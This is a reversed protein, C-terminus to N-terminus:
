HTLTKRKVFLPLSGFSFDLMSTWVNTEKGLLPQFSQKVKDTSGYKWRHTFEHSHTYIHITLIILTDKTCCIFFSQFALTFANHFNHVRFLSNSHPAMIDLCVIPLLVSLRDVVRVITIRMALCPCDNAILFFFIMPHMNLAWTIMKHTNLDAM